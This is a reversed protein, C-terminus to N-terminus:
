RDLSSRWASSRSSRPRWSRGIASIFRYGTTRRSVPSRDSGYELRTHPPISSCSRVVLLRPVGASGPPAGTPHNRRRIDDASGGEPGDSRGRQRACPGVASRIRGSLVEGSMRLRDASAWARAQDLDFPLVCLDNQSILHATPALSRRDHNFGGFIGNRSCRRSSRGIVIRASRGSSLASAQPSRVYWYAIAEAASRRAM